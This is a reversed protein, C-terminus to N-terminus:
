IERENNRENDKGVRKKTINIFSYFIIIIPLLMFSFDIIAVIIKWLAGLTIDSKTILEYIVTIKPIVGNVLSNTYYVLYIIMILSITIYFICFVFKTLYKRDKLYKPSFCKLTNVFLGNLNLCDFYDTMIWFADFRFFPNLNLFIITFSNMIAYFIDANKILYNIITLLSLYILQFYIGGLDIIMKKKPPLFYIKPNIRIFFQPYILYM